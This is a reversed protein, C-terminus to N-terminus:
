RFQLIARSGQSKVGEAQNEALFIREPEVKSVEVLYDRVAKAREAALARFDSDTINITQELIREMPDSPGSSAAKTSGAAPNAASPPQESSKKMLATAGKEQGAPRVDPMVFASANTAGGGSAAQIVEPTIEGKSVADTYLRKLWHSRDQPSVVVKDATLTERDSKRMSKWEATRIQQELKEHRLGERDADPDISGQIELQLGPREYLGKALSDLKEKSGPQLESSGPAFEQYSLEEGKGGFVASLAAFPSTVIKTLLSEIASVIVKHLRFQPDDISGEIPVDLKIKGERDKLVAVALRVPLKTADPSNVKEGFTFHDLVIVNQSQLKRNLLHYDLDMELKGQALQYGAFRGVYPSTPTLDMNKVSIKIENTVVPTGKSEDGPSPPKANRALSLLNVKGSIDAPGVNDIMAHLDLNAHGLEESSLGAITGGVKQISMNVSPSVSRDTFRVQANSIVVADITVKPLTFSSLTNTPTRETGQGAAATGSSAPESNKDGKSEQPSAGHETPAASNTDGLAAMLNITHNTEIVGRVFADDVAVEKIHVEPPNLNADIGSFRVSSWKLLDEGLVSDVTSFDDLRVNGQFKVEPLQGEKQTLHVQSDMGLKSETIFVNLKPELYPDLPRLEIHDLGFQVDVALPNFSAKIDAKIAGNTNWRLSGSATLNTGPLISINKASFEMQDLNLRVPRPNALDELDMSCDHFQVDHISGRWSNTTNLFLTVANTISKLLLIVAEPTNAGPEQPKAAELVNIANNKDRRLSLKSGSGSIAEVEAQRAQTNASIGSMSFEPLFVVTPGTDSETVTMRHVNLSTNTVWAFSGGPTLEVHYTAQVDASGGKVRLQVFDQYLASYRGLTFNELSFDGESRLPGLYFYGNWSFKEGSDTTGALSYPNKNAPDTGFNVLNLDIPGLTRQFPTRPTLDTLSASAGQIGFKGIRLALPKPPQTPVPNTSFNTVLDSFNFTYDKNIQVRVFPKTTTIEKFVWPHGFFSVLQFNAYVEDWSVFPQGDKDKILLGRITASLVYPNLKVKQISVERGLQKAIQKVAVARVILPLILFGFITYFVLLGVAWVVWKRVRPTLAHWWAPGTIKGTFM